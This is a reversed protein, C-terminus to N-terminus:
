SLEDLRAEMNAQMRMIWRETDSILGMRGRMNLPIGKESRIYRRLAALLALIDRVQQASLMGENVRAYVAYALLRHSLESFWRKKREVESVAQWEPAILKMSLSQIPTTTEQPRIYADGMALRRQQLLEGHQCFIYVRLACLLEFRQAEIDQSASGDRSLASLVDRMGDEKVACRAELLKLPTAPLAGMTIMTIQESAFRRHTWVLDAEEDTLPPLTFPNSKSGCVLKHTSWALKQHDTSCFFVDIGEAACRPCRTKTEKGCMCCTNYTTDAM